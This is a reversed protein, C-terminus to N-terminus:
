GQFLGNAIAYRIASTRDAVDLRIYIDHLHSEVTRPSIALYAAVQSDSLGAAVLRLVQMQRATLGAPYPPAPLRDIPLALDDLM